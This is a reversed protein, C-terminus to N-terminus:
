DPQAWDSLNVVAATARMGAVKLLYDTIAQMPKRLREVDAVIYGATVDHRMKHNILRKVAYASIDLGEAITVFTRRLDHPTFYIGSRERVKIIQKNANVLHGTQSTTSPFVYRNVAESQRRTLLEHLFDSLPLTHPEYNKTDSISLTRGVRDVESWQLRAGEERRLGTFLLLLLYDRVTEAQEGPHDSHLSLVAECWPKLEHPKIISQRREVRYWAQTHSLRTVPNDPFLPAGHEDEYQGQAFNFLARLVRMANNARAESVNGLQAHRTAVRDRNIDGLPKAKWDEFAELMVRRYDKLTGPKLSKRAKLYDQFVEELTISRVKEARKETNPNVGDALRSLAAQAHRRAQEITMEPFRGLTVRVSKGNVKKRVLFSKVGNDTVSVLLGNIKTDYHYTRTSKTPDQRPPTPLDELAKKTFNLRATM